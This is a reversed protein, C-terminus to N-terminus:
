VHARGIKWVIAGLLVVAAAAALFTIVRLAFDGIRDGLRRTTSRISYESPVVSM